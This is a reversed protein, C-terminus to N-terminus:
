TPRGNVMTPTPYAIAKDVKEALVLGAPPAAVPRTITVTGYADRIRGNLANATDTSYVISGDLMTAGVVFPEGNVLITTAASGDLMTVGSSFAEGSVTIGSTTGASYYAAVRAASIASPIYAVPGERGDLLFSAGAAAAHSAAVMLDYNAGTQTNDITVSTLTTDLSGNIYYKLTSTPQDYTATVMYVTSTSLTATGLRDASTFMNLKGGTVYFSWQRNTNSTNERSIVARYGSTSDLRIWANVTFSASAMWAASTLFLHSNSGGPFDFSGTGTPMVTAAGLTPSGVVSMSRGNGSSDAAVTGSTENLLWVGLPSDALVESLYSM